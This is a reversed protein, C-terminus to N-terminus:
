DFRADVADSDVHIRSRRHQQPSHGAYTGDQGVIDDSVTLVVTREAATPLQTVDGFKAVLRKLLCRAEQAHWLAGVGQIVGPDVGLLVAEDCADDVAQSGWYGVQHRM